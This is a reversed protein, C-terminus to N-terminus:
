DALRLVQAIDGTGFGGGISEDLNHFPVVFRAGTNESWTTCNLNTGTLTVLFPNSSPCATGFTSGTCRRPDDIRSTASGTVLLVSGQSTPSNWLSSAPGPCTGSSVTLRKAYARLVAAGAGRDSGGLVYPGSAPAPPASTGNSNIVLSVDAASGGDCDVFGPETDQEFRWCADCSGCDPTSGPLSAGFVIPAAITLTAVGNADPSGGSLILPGGVAYFDGKTGNCVTGPIGGTPNGHTKLLSGSSPESPCGPATDSGSPGGVVSFALAGLALNTPTATATATPTPPIPTPTLTPGGPTITPTFTPTITPTLTQTPTHTVTPTPAAGCSAVLTVIHGDLAQVRSGTGPYNDAQMCAAIGNPQMAADLGFRTSCEAGTNFGNGSSSCGLTWNFTLTHPEPAGTGVGTIVAHASREFESNSTNSSTSAGPAELDLTTGGQLSGGAQVGAISSMQATSSGTTGGFPLDCGDGNDRRITFAGRAVTSIQLEYPAGAPCAIEFSVTYNAPMSTSIGGGGTLVAECDTATNAAFRTTFGDGTASSIQVDSRMARYCNGFAQYEQGLQPSFDDVSVNRVPPGFPTATNTPTPTNTATSTITPTDTPTGTATWTPTHTPSHTPTVTATSTVTPTSTPTMTDTPTSTPTDTPTHTPVPTATRTPTPTEDGSPFPRPVLQLRFAQSVDVAMNVVPAIFDLAFLPAVISASPGTTDAWAACDFPRGALSTTNPGVSAPGNGDIADNEVFSTALGTTLATAIVPSNSYDLTVCNADNDPAVALQILTRIVASGAPASPAVGAPIELSPVPDPPPPALLNSDVTLSVGADTGGDCDIWGTTDPDPLLRLCITGAQGLDQAASVFNAGLHVPTLLVVPANGDGDPTGRGLLVPGPGFAGDTANGFLNVGTFDFIRLWTSEGDDSPLLAGSGPQVDFAACSLGEPCLVPVPTPTPTVPTPTRTETPTPSPGSPTDTAAPTPETGSGANSAVVDLRLVVAMDHPGTLVPTTTNLEYLPAALSARFGPQFNSCDFPKGALQTQVDPAPHQTPSHVNQATNRVISSAVGTGLITRIPTANSFDAQDCAQSLNATGGIRIQVALVGSGSGSDSGGAPHALSPTGAADLGQSDIELTADANSGGDCDIWGEADPDPEILFCVRRSQGSASPLAAGVIAPASLRLAAIGDPNISQSREVLLPGSNFNGQSGNTAQIGLFAVLNTIRYWTSWGDDVPALAGPGPQVALALCDWGAACDLEPIPTPTPPTTPTPTPAPPPASPNYIHDFLEDAVAEVIQAACEQVSVIGIGCTDLSDVVASSRCRDVFAAGQSRAREMKGRPDATKCSIDGAIRGADQRKQCNNQEKSRGLYYKDFVRGIAAQCNVEDTSTGPTPPTGYLEGIAGGVRDLAVCALCSGVSDYAATIPVSSCPEPCGVYNRTAPPTARRCSRLAGAAAKAVARDLKLRSPLPLRNRDNCDISPFIKGLMRARHCRTHEKHASRAAKQVAKAIGARCTANGKDVPQAAATHASGALIFIALILSGHSRVRM